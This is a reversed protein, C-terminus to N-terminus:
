QDLNLKDRSDEDSSPIKINPLNMKPAARRHKSLSKEKEVKKTQKSEEYDNELAVGISGKESIFQHPPSTIVSSDMSNKMSGTFVSGIIEKKQAPNQMVTGYDSPELNDVIQEREETNILSSDKSVRNKKDTTEIYNSSSLKSIRENSNDYFNLEDEIKLGSVKQM